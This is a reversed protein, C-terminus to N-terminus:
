CVRLNLIYTTGPTLGNVATIYVVGGTSYWSLTVASTIPTSLNGSVNCSAIVVEVPNGSITSKFSFANGAPTSASSFSISYYQANFNASFTLGNVLALYVPDTFLNLQSLFRGTFWDPAKSYDAPNFQKSASSPLTAM